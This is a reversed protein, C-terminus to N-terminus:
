RCSTTCSPARPRARRPEGGHLHADNVGPIVVSNVKCWSAARPWCRWGRCAAARHLIAAAERGHVRRHQWFIWPYIQAGVEPDVCTSPSPSTTSTTHQCIEDVHDPLALGNTSLCLKIDPAHEALRRFTEFTRAPNALPDGPGAIGLM